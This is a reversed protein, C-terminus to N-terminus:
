LLDGFMWGLADLVQRAMPRTLNAELIDEYRVFDYDTVTEWDPGTTTITWTALADSESKLPGLTSRVGWVKVFTKWAHEFLRYYGTAGQPDYGHVYIVRRRKILAPDKM